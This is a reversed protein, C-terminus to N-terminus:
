IKKLILDVQKYLNDLNGDIKILYDCKSAYQMFADKNLKLASKIDKCGRKQLNAIQLKEDANIGIIYDCLYELNAEFLLPVEIAVYEDNSKKIFDLLKEEVMPHIIKELRTKKKSDNTIIKKLKQRDLKNDTIIDAKLNTQLLNIINGNSYLQHVIEDSSVGLIGKSKLYALVTSKGSAIVGTIGIVKPIKKYRQCKPCYTTGRGGLKIKKLKNGCTPCPKDVKGYVLLENQFKGDVGQAAHYSKITSGGLKIAKNLVYVSNNLITQCEKQTLEKAPTCPNIKSLFLVEDAYINGLGSMISQDLVVTKIPANFRQYKSFLYNSDKIDFPEPGVKLLLPDTAIEQSKILKMIGFMRTDDFVVRKGSEFTFLVRTHKTITEGDKLLFFKGEMRLHSILIYDNEIHFLLYKGKRTIDNIKKGILITKFDNIDSLIMKEHYVEVKAFVENKLFTIITNKVTEVEPLEPM